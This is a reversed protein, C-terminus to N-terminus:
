IEDLFKHLDSLATFKVIRDLCVPIDQDLEQLWKCVRPLASHKPSRIWKGSSEHYSGRFDKIANALKHKRETRTM